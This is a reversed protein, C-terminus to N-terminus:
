LWHAALLPISGAAVLPYITWGMRRWQWKWYWPGNVGQVHALTLLGMIITIGLLLCLKWRFPRSDPENAPEEGPRTNSPASDGPAVPLRQPPSRPMRRVYAVSM